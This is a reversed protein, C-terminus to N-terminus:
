KKKVEHEVIMLIGKSTLVIKIKGKCYPCNYYSENM